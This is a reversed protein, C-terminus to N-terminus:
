YDMTIAPQTIKTTMNSAIIKQEEIYGIGSTLISKEISEKLPLFLKSSHEQSLSQLGKIREEVFSICELFRKDTEESSLFGQIFYEKALNYKEKVESLDRRIYDEVLLRLGENFFKNGDIKLCSMDYYQKYEDRIPDANYVEEFMKKAKQFEISAEEALDDDLELKWGNNWNEKGEHFKKNLSEQEMSIKALYQDRKEQWNKELEDKKERLSIELNIKERNKVFSILHEKLDEHTDLQLSNSAVPILKYIKECMYNLANRAAYIKQSKVFEEYKTRVEKMQSLFIDIFEEQEELTFQLPNKIALDIRSEEDQIGKEINSELKTKAEKFNKDIEELENRLVILQSQINDYQNTIKEMHKDVNKTIKMGVSNTCENIAKKTADLGNDVHENIAKKTADLGNDVHENIAKKTADLERDIHENISEKTSSLGNDIHENIAEKTLNLGPGNLSCDALNYTINKNSDKLLFNNPSSLM